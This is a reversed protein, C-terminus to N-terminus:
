VERRTIRSELAQQISQVYRRSVWTYSGDIFSIRITGTNGYDFDAVKRLNVIEFRSIRVFHKQDLLKEVDQLYQRAEFTGTEACIFVKRNETYIRLIHRQDLFTLSDGKYASIVPRQEKQLNNQIASIMHDIAESRRSTHIIIETKKYSPDIELHIDIEDSM